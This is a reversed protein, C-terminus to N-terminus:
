AGCCLTCKRSIRFGLPWYYFAFASFFIPVSVVNEGARIIIDKARDVIYVYGEQDMYGLDGTRLWGDKTLVRDTAETSQTLSHSIVNM